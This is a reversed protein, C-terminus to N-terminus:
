YKMFNPLHGVVICSSWSNILYATAIFKWWKLDGFDKANGTTSITIFDYRIKIIAMTIQRRDSGRTSSSARVVLM